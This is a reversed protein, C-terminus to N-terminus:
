AVSKMHSAGPHDKHLKEILCSRLKRPIIVQNGWFLCGVEISLEQKCQAIPKYIEETRKPWGAEVYHFVKSLVPDKRTATQVQEVTVPLVQIQGVLFAQINDLFAAHRTGLPLRSLGNANAHQKTPRFKITYSYASLTCAWRQLRVAALPPIGQKPGLITTLPKHDTVLVFKRGNLYQHFKQVGYILSLAEKKL